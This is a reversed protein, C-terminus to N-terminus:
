ASAGLSMVLVGGKGVTLSDGPFLLTTSDTEEIVAPGALAEGGALGARRLIACPAAAAADFWVPRRRAPLRDGPSRDAFDRSPEAALATM